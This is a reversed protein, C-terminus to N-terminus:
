DAYKDKPDSVTKIVLLRTTTLAEFACPENQEITIIDGENADIIRDDFIFSCMGSLVVNIEKSLSHWHRSNNAGPTYDKIGVEFDTQELANPFKGTIWGNCKNTFKDLRNIRM